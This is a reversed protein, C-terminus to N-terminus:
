MESSRSRQETQPAVIEKEGRTGSLPTLVAELGVTGLEAGGAGDGRVADAAENSAGSGEPGDTGAPAPESPTAGTAPALSHGYQEDSSSM